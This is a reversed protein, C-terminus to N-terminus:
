QLESTHEETRQAPKPSIVDVGGMNGGAGGATAPGRMKVGGAGCAAASAEDGRCILIPSVVMMGTPNMSRVASQFSLFAPPLRPLLKPLTGYLLAAVALSESNRKLGCFERMPKRMSPLQFSQCKM